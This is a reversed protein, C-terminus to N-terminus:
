QGPVLLLKTIAEVCAYFRGGVEPLALYRSTKEMVVDECGWEALPVDDLGPVDFRFYKMWGREMLATNEAEFKESHMRAEAKRDEVGNAMETIENEHDLGAGTGISVIIMMDNTYRFLKRCEYLIDRVPNNKATGHDVLGPEIVLRSNPGAQIYRPAISTAKMAAAITMNADLEPGTIRRTQYSRMLAPKNIGIEIHTSVVFRLSNTACALRTAILPLKCTALIRATTM